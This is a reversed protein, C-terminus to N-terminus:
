NLLRMLHEVKDVQLKTINFCDEATQTATALDEATHARALARDVSELSGQLLELKEMHGQVTNVTTKTKDLQEQQEKQISLLNTKAENLKQTLQSITARHADINETNAKKASTLAKTFSVIECMGHPPVRHDIVLCDRCVWVSCTQCRFFMLSGHAGCQGANPEKVSLSQSSAGSQEGKKLQLTKLSRVLRLLAYSVPLDQSSAADICMRCEPCKKNKALIQDLCWSCFTHGCGLNRPTRDDEYQMDCVTCSVEEEITVQLLSIANSLCLM